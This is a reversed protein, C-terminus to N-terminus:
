AETHLTWRTLLTQARAEVELLIKYTEQRRVEGKSDPEAMFTYTYTYTYICRNWLHMYNHRRGTDSAPGTSLMVRCAVPASAVTCQESINACEVSVVQVKEAAWLYLFM